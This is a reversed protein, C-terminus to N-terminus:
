LRGHNEHFDYKAEAMKRAKVAHALCRFSGLQETKGNWTIRANWNCKRKDFSVGQVGSSSTKRVKRNKANDRVTVSRLNVLRNDDRKGNIHDIQEPWEGYVMAWIVRHALLNTGFIKGVRYGHANFRCFAEAGKRGRTGQDELWYLKGTDADYKIKESLQSPAIM